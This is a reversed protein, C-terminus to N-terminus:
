LFNNELRCRLVCTNSHAAALRNWIEEEDDGELISLVRRVPEGDLRDRFYWYGLSKYRYVKRERKEGPLRLTLRLADGDRRAFVLPFAAAYLEWQEEAVFGRWDPLRPCRRSTGTFDRRNRQYCGCSHCSEQLDCKQCEVDGYLPPFYPLQRIKQEGM